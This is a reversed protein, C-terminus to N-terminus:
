ELPMANKPQGRHLHVDLQPFAISINQAAFSQNILLNIEHIALNRDSLTGTFFRLEFDLTSNGFTTFFVEPAPEKLVRANSNAAALIVKHVLATDSGYAVGINITVRTIADSLSWNILQDTIFTKNPIIVEKRDWDSITTARIQIKTVKGTVGGITVTDGIRVPKEFLIIIGSVFNAVIEQLGFGLGVGMAAVLWQLKAWEVGIQSAGAMVSFIILLYRTITTIAYSTGPTLNLHRLVLLELLGPLNYVALITLVIVLASTIISSLSITESIVGSATVVENNWVIINDLVDLSPLFNKVLLWMAMFLLSFCLAKLIITAQESVSQLSLYNEELAPIELNNERAALITTRRARARSFTLRREAILLWRLCFRYIAFICFVILAILFMTSIIMSSTYLYGFLAAIILAIHVTIMATFWLKAQQWWSLHSSTINIHPSVKWLAAWFSGALLSLLIFVLRGLGSHLELSPINDFYLLLWALPAGLFFMPLLLKKLKICFDESMDLHSIFLGYPRNLWHILTLYSWFSLCILNNIKVTNIDEITLIKNFLLYLFLPAPLCIIPAAILLKFSRSFRDQIVNGIQRSWVKQQRQQSKLLFISVAVLLLYFIAWRWWEQVPKFNLTRLKHMAQQFQDTSSQSIQMFWSLDVSPVSPLWLLYKTLFKQGLIFQQAIQNELTLIKSLENLERGYARHLNTILNLSAAQLEAYDQLSQKDWTANDQVNTVMDLKLQNLEINKLRLKAMKSLTDKKQLPISFRQSFNRLEIGFSNESLELQQQIVKYSQQILQQQQELIRLREFLSASHSVSIRLQESLMSNQTLLNIVADPNDARKQTTNLQELLQDAESQRIRQINDQYRRIKKTLRQLELETWSLKLRDYEDKLPIVLLELNIAQSKLNYLSFLAKNLQQQAQTTASITTDQRQQKLITLDYRLEVPRTNHLNIDNEIKNRNQKLELGTSQLQTLELELTALKASKLKFPTNNKKKQSLQEKLHITKNPLAQLEEKFAEIELEVADLQSYTEVIQLYVDRLERDEVQDADTIALQRQANELVLNAASFAPPALLM